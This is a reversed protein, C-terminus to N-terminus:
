VSGKWVRVKWVNRLVAVDRVLPAGTHHHPLALLRRWLLPARGEAVRHHSFLAPSSVCLPGHEGLSSMKNGVFVSHPFGALMLFLSPCSTFTNGLVTVTINIFPKYIFLARSKLHIKYNTSGHPYVHLNANVYLVCRRLIRERYKQM